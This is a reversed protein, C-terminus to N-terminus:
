PVLETLTIAVDGLREVHLKVKTGPATDRLRTRWDALSKMAVPAGDIATIRDDAKIGAAEAPGHPTTAVVRLADGHRLLFLGSRDYLEKRDLEPRPELYMVKGSYDFTVIFRHLIGGGLNAASDPDAFAGKDGTFLEGVVDHVVVKGITVEHLRV